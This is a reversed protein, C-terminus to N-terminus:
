RPLKQRGACVKIKTSGSEARKDRELNKISIDRYQDVVFDVCYYANVSRVSTFTRKIKREASASFTLPLDKQSQILVM